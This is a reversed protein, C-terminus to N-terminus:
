EINQIQERIKELETKITIVERSIGIDQAKASMTNAERNMEQLIFDLEKGAEQKVSLKERFLHLHSKMRVVEETIDTKEALLVAEQWVREDQAAKADFLATIRERLKEYRQGPLEQARQEIESVAKEIQGVRGTLDKGLVGGERRRARLLNRLAKELSPRLSSWIKETTEERKEVSFIRPLTLLDRASLSEKLHFRRQVKRMVSLYFGLVKEDLTIEELSSAEKESLTVTVKGRRIYRQCLERIRDELSYLSPSAKLSFEFYRHNLSRIEVVWGGKALSSVARAFGTMSQIM